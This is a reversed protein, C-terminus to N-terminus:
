PRRGRRRGRDSRPHDQGRRSAAIVAPVTADAMQRALKSACWSRWLGRLAAEFNRAFRPVDCLPSAAMRARQDRRLAALRDPNSALDAAIRIYDDPEKAVWEARGLVTLFAQTQRSVPRTKPMTVVPVGQWLAELSTMGGSYPFPDLAIDVDGYEVLTQRHQSAGRLELRGPDIGLEGLQRRYEDEAEPTGLTRWKLLLRAGPVVALLRAWLRLVDPTVKALNNISGFTICGRELVPPPGPPPAYDPPAYCWRTEPLRVVQEVFGREAGPPVTVEDMLAYDIAALGTTFPYGIWSVQVPAPRLAFMTLRNGATHGALDILIDIGDARIMEGLAGDPVELTSRWAVAKAKLRATLGDETRRGSYCIFQVEDPDAAALVPEVLYGVPHRVFDASVLGVRLTKDPDRSNAYADYAHAPHSYLTGWRRHAAFLSTEDQAPDYNLCYLYDSHAEPYDPKIRLAQEYAAAAEKFRGQDSLANGRNGHAKALDPKIRLARDYDALAEKTRGLERLANGRNVYVAVWDPEIRLAQDYATIAQKLRGERELIVGRNFHAQTYDPRIRLAQDYAALADASRGLGTLANGRNFHGEAIDPQIRLAQDFAELAPEFRGLAVRAAGRNIHADVYDPKVRLAQDYAAVAPELRGQRELVVGRNFHARAYNPEIRLAQDFAELAQALRAQQQLVVGRNLHAQTLDPKRRLAQDYAALADELQGRQQLVIARYYHVQALDPRIRLTQDFAALAEELQGRQGLASGRGLHAEAYDPRLRVAADYAALSEEIRGQRQLISGRSHHYLAAREVPSLAAEANGTRDASIM